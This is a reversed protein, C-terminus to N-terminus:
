VTDNTKRLEPSNNLFYSVISLYNLASIRPFLPTTDNKKDM